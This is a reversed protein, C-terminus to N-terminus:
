PQASKMSCSFGVLVGPVNGLWRGNWAFGLTQWGCVRASACLGNQHHLHHM